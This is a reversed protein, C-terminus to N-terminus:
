YANRSILDGNERPVALSVGSCVPIKRVSTFTQRLTVEGQHESNRGPQQKKFNLWLSM